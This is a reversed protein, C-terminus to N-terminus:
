CAKHLFQSVPGVPQCSKQIPRSKQFSLLLSASLAPSSTMNNISPFPLRTHYTISSSINTTTRNPDDRALLKALADIAPPYYKHIEVNYHAFRLPKTSTPSPGPAFSLLFQLINLADERSPLSVRDSVNSLIIVVDKMFDQANVYSRLFMNRTGLYRITSSLFKIVKADALVRNHKDGQIYPASLNRLITTIAILRDAARDLQWAMTGVEPIDQLGHIEMKVNRIVEEYSGLDLIDSVEPADEALLEVQDEACDLLIDILDECADLDIFVLRHFSMKVLTDLAYRMEAHIGSQLSHTLAVIDVIGMEELNPVNPIIAVLKEAERARNDVGDIGGWSDELFKWRPEHNTTEEQEPGGIKIIKQAGNTM